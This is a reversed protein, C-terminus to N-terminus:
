FKKFKRKLFIISFILGISLILFILLYNFVYHNKEMKKFTINILVNNGNVIFSGEPNKSIYGDSAWVTYNYSGNKERFTISINSSKFCEGNSLNVSWITSPNLGNESFTVNYFYEINKNFIVYLTINGDMFVSGESKLPRYDSESSIFYNYFGEPISISVSNNKSYETINLIKVSWNTGPPLGSEIIKLMYESNNPFYFVSINEGRSTNFDIYRDYNREIISGNGEKIYYSFNYPLYLFLESNNRESYSINFIITDNIMRYKLSTIVSGGDPIMYFFSQITWSSEEVNWATSNRMIETMASNLIIQTYNTDGMLASYYASSMDMISLNLAQQYYSLNSLMDFINESLTSNWQIVDMIVPWYEAMIDPYYESFNVNAGLAWDIYSGNITFNLLIANRVSDSLNMLFKSYSINKLYFFLRSADHIGLYVECNDMLFKVRYDPKAFTLNDNMTSFIAKLSLLVSNINEKLYTLNDTAQIYDYMAIIYTAAYSDSSDYNHTPIETGNLVNFDYITGVIGENDNNMNQHESYWSLWKEAHQIYTSNGTIEYARILGISAINSVYPLIYNSSPYTEIAGDTLQSSLIYDAQDEVVSIYYKFDDYVNKVASCPIYISSLNVNSIYVPIGMDRGLNYDFYDFYDCENPAYGLGLVELGTSKIFDVTNKLNTLESNNMFEYGGSTFNYYTGFDEYLVFNIYGSINKILEFGRNVGIYIGPFDRHIESIIKIMGSAEWPYQEVVDLDDFLVGNFGQNIDYRVRCITYNVWKPSSVNVITQNWERDYGIVIGTLNITCNPYTSNDFEGLDIYAIKIGRIESLNNKSFAWHQLIVMDFNNLIKIVSDNSSGYYVSFNRVNLKTEPSIKINGYDIYTPALIEVLFLFIVIATSIKLSSLM